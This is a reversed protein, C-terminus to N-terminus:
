SMNVVELVIGLAKTPITVTSPKRKTPIALQFSYPTERVGAEMHFNPKPETLVRARASVGM